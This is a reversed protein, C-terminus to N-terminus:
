AGGYPDDEGFPNQRLTNQRYASAVIKTIGQEERSSEVTFRKGNVYIIEGHRPIRERKKIYHDTAFYITTFDGHLGAFTENQRNSKDATREIIQAPLLVGDIWTLRGFEDLEVFVPIDAAMDDRFTKM